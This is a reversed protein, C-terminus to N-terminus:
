KALTVNMTEEDSDYHIEISYGDQNEATYRDDYENDQNKTFGKKKCAKIYENFNNNNVGYASFDFTDKDDSTIQVIPLEPKPLKKALASGSWEYVDKSVDDYSYKENKYDYYTVHLKQKYVYTITMVDPEVLKYQDMSTVSWNMNGIVVWDNKEKKGPKALKRNSAKLYFDNLEDEDVNRDEYYDPFANQLAELTTDQKPKLEM